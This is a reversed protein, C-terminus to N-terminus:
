RLPSYVRSFLRDMREKRKISRELKEYAIPDVDALAVRRSNMREEEELSDGRGNGGNVLFDLEDQISDDGRGGYSNGYEDTGGTYEDM